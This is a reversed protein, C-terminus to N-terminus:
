RNRFCLRSRTTSWIAMSRTGSVTAGTVAGGLADYLAANKSFLPSAASCPATPCASNPLLVRQAYDFPVMLHTGKQGVYGVQVTTDHTLQHQIPLNWQEAIAPQVNPDWVRLLTNVYCLYAPADCPAAAASGVYVTPQTQEPLLSSNYVKNIEAPYVAPKIDPTPEHRYRGSIILHYLRWPGGNQWGANGSDLCFRYAASLGQRRLFGQIFCPQSWRPRSPRYKRHRLQLQSTITHKLGLRIRMM